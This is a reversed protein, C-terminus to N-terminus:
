GVVTFVDGVDVQLVRALAVIAAPIGPKKSAETEPLYAANISAESALARATLGRRERWIQLPSEGDVIRSAKGLALTDAAVTALGERAVRTDFAPRDRADEAAATLAEFGQRRLTMKEATEAIPGFQAM